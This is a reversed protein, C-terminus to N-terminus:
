RRQTETAEAAGRIRVVLREPGLDVEDRDSLPQVGRVLAGNLLTGNRSGLDEISVGTASVVIRAHRRSICSSDIWVSAVPERGLV